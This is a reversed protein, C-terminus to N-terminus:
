ARSPRSGVRRRDLDVVTMTRASYSVTVTFTVLYRNQVRDECSFAIPGIDYGAATREKRLLEILSYVGRFETVLRKTSDMVLPWIQMATTPQLVAQNDAMWKVHIDKGPKVPQFCINFIPETQSINRLLLRTIPFDGLTTSELAVQPATRPLPEEKLNALDGQLTECKARESRWALFGNRIVSCLALAGFALAWAELQWHPLLKQTAYKKQLEESLINDRIWTAAYITTMVVGAIWFWLWPKLVVVFLYSWFGKIDDKKSM